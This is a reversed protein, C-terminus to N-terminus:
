GRTRRLGMGESFDGLTSMSEPDRTRKLHDRLESIQNLVATAFAEDLIMAGSQARTLAAATVAEKLYAPTFGDTAAAAKEVLAEVDFGPALREALSGRSLLRRCYEAREPRKPLGVHFVRDFRSPRKLLAEDIQGPHNSSAIILLGENSRFGDMENLFITRNEDHIMGDIDEFVLLCPALKRARGFVERISERNNREKLDRVYLLPWDPLAAAAAKCIMTKGTGPPGVLLIGRRWSFGLAAYAERGSVFSEVSDRLSEAIDPALVIDDWGVSTAEKELEPANEWGNTYRLCRGTPRLAFESLERALRRLNEDDEAAVIVFGNHYANPSFAVEITVGEWEAEWWGTFRTAKYQGDSDCFYDTGALLSRFSATQQHLFRLVRTKDLWAMATSVGARNRRIAALLADESNGSDAAALLAENIAAERWNAPNTFPLFAAATGTGNHNELAEIKSMIMLRAPLRQFYARVGPM